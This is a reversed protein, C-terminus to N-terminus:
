APVPARLKGAAWGGAVCGAIKFTNSLFFLAPGYLEYVPRISGGSLALVLGFYILTAVIGVLFGHLVQATVLPRAAWLGFPFGMVFVLVPVWPVIQEMTAFTTLLITLAFLAVEYLFAVVIARLWRIKM